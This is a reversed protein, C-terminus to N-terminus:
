FLNVLNDTWGPSLSLLSGTDSSFHRVKLRKQLGPFLHYDSANITQGEPLYDIPLIGDQDLFVIRPSKWCFKCESNKRANRPPGSHRWQMSQQKTGPDYHYLWTEDM